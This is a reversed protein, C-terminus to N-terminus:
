FLWANEGLVIGKEKLFVLVEDQQTRQTPWVTLITKVSPVISELSNVEIIDTNISRLKANMDFWSFAVGKEKLQAAVLKGKKGAGILQLPENEGLELELFWSTKLRFFAEQQYDEVHRSTRKPHERWFHTITNEVIIEYGLRYWHFVLDYDEPYNLTEFPM